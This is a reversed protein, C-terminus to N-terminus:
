APRGAVRAEMAAAQVADFSASLGDMFAEKNAGLSLRFLHGSLHKLLLNKILDQNFGKDAGFRLCSSVVDGLVHEVVQEMDGEAIDGEIEIAM